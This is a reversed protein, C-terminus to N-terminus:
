KEVGYVAFWGSNKVVCLRLVFSGIRCSVGMIDNRVNECRVFGSENNNRLLNRVAKVSERFGSRTSECLPSM